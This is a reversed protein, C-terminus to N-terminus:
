KGPIDVFLTTVNITSTPGTGGRNVAAVSIIYTTNKILNSFETTSESLETINMDNGDVSNVIIVNYYLVPGCHLSDASDWVITIM